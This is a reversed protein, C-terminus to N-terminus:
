WSVRVLISDTINFQERLANILKLQNHLRHPRNAYFRDDSADMVWEEISNYGDSRIDDELEDTLEEIAMDDCAIVQYSGNGAMQAFELRSWHVGILEKIDDCDIYQITKIKM